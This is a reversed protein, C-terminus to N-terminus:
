ETLDLWGEIGEGIISFPLPSSTLPFSNEPKDKLEPM